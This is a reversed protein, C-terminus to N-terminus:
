ADNKIQYPIATWSQGGNVTKYLGARPLGARSPRDSIALWGVQPSIFECDSGARDFAGAQKQRTLPLHVTIVQWSQGGDHTVILYIPNLRASYVPTPALFFQGDNMNSFTPLGLEYSQHIIDSSLPASYQWSDGGDHTTYILVHTDGDNIAFKGDRASFAQAQEITGSFSFGAPVPLIQKQWSKGANHTVYIIPEGNPTATGTTSLWTKADFFTIPSWERTNVPLTFLHWTQGGDVTSWIQGPVMHVWGVRDNLFDFSIDYDMFSFPRTLPGPLKVLRWSQGGDTTHFLIGENTKGGNSLWASTASVPDLEPLMDWGPTVIHLPTANQWTQGGDVTHLVSGRGDDAQAWGHMEDMMFISQFVASTAVPEHKTVLPFSNATPTKKLENGLQNHLAQRSENLVFLLSSILLMTLAAALLTGFRRQWRKGPRASVQRPTRHQIPAEARPSEVRDPQSHDQHTELTSILQEPLNAPYSAPPYIIELDALLQELAPDAAADEAFLDPYRTNPSSKDNM